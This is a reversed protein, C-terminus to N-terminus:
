KKIRNFIVKLKQSIIAFLQIFTDVGDKVIVRIKYFVRDIKKFNTIKKCYPCKYKAAKDMIKMQRNCNKCKIIIKKM